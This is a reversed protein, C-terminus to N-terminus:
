FFIDPKWRFGKIKHSPVVKNNMDITSYEGKEFKDMTITKEGVDAYIIEPVKKYRYTEKKVSLDYSRTVDTIIEIVVDPIGVFENKTFRGTNEKSVFFLDPMFRIDKDFIVMLRPGFMRGLKHEFIYDYLFYAVRVQTEEHIVRASSQMFIIGKHFDAKTDGISYFDELSGSVSMIYPEDYNNPLASLFGSFDTDKM